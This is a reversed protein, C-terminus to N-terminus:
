LAAIYNDRLVDYPLVDGTVLYPVCGVAQALARLGPAHSDYVERGHQFLERMASSILDAYHAEIGFPLARKVVHMPKYISVVELPALFKGLEVDFRFLRKLFSVECWPTFPKSIPLKSTDTLEKGQSAFWKCLSVQNFWELGPRATLVHDDGYFSARVYDAFAGKLGALRPICRKARYGAPLTIGGVSVIDTPRPLIIGGDRDQPELQAAMFYFGSRFRLANTGNNFYVTGANGSPNGGDTQYQDARIVCWARAIDEAVGWMITIDRETYNGTLEALAVWISCMAMMEQYALSQDYHVWDGVLAKSSDYAQLWTALAHWEAGSANIGVASELVFPFYAYLRFLPLFYKRFICNLLLPGGKFVRVKKGPKLPEDKQSLKFALNARQGQAYTEEVARLEATTVENLVLGDPEDPLPDPSMHALKPGLYPWGAATGMPIRNISSCGKVGSVMEHDSLPRMQAVVEPCAEMVAVHEALYDEQAMVLFDPDLQEYTEVERVHRAEVGKQGYHVPPGHLRPQGCLEEVLQSHPSVVLRTHPHNTRQFSLTGAVIYPVGDSTERLVSGDSLEQLTSQMEFGVPTHLQTSLQEVPPGKLPGSRRLAEIAMRIEDRDVPASQVASTSTHGMTHLSLIIPKSGPVIVPAGCLGKFSAIPRVGQFGPYSWGFAANHVRCKEVTYRCQEVVYDQVGPRVRSLEVVPYSSSTLASCALFPTVDAMSGGVGTQVVALDNSLKYITTQGVRCKFTPGYAAGTSTFLLHKIKSPVPARASGGSRYFNHAPMLAYNTCLMLAQTIVVQSEYHVEVVFLQRAIRAMAQEYSMGRAPGEVYQALAVQEKHKWQNPRPFLDAQAGICGGHPEFSESEMEEPEGMLAPGKPAGGLEGLFDNFEEEPDCDSVDGFWPTRCQSVTHRTTSPAKPGRKSSLPDLEIHCKAGAIPPVVLTPPDSYTSSSQPRSSREVPTAVLPAAVEVVDESPKKCARVICKGLYLSTLVAIVGLIMRSGEVKLVQALRKRLAGLPMGSIRHYVFDAAVRSQTRVFWLNSIIALPISIIGSFGCLAALCGTFVGCSAPLIGYLLTLFGVPNAIFLEEFTTKGQMYAECWGMFRPRPPPEEPPPPVLAGRVDGLRERMRTYFNSVPEPPAPEPPELPVGTAPGIDRGFLYDEARGAWALFREREGAEQEFVPSASPAEVPAQLAARCHHCMRATTHGHECLTEMAAEKQQAHMLRKQQFHTIVRPKLFEMLQSYNADKLLLNYVGGGDIKGPDVRLPVYDYVNFRQFYSSIGETLKSADVTPLAQVPQVTGDHATINRRSPNAFAPDVSVSIHLDFRRHITTPANSTVGANLDMVNTSALLVAANHTVVGKDELAAKEVPAKSVNKIAIVADLQDRKMFEPKTNGLDDLIVGLTHNTITSMYAESANVFAIHDDSFPLQAIRLIDRVIQVQVSSKGCATPGYLKIGIPEVRTPDRTIYEKLRLDVAVIQQQMRRLVLKEPASKTKAHAVNVKKLHNAVTLMFEPNSIGTARQLTGNLLAPEQALINAHAADLSTAGSQTFFPRMSSTVCAETIVDWSVRVLHLIELVLDTYDIRNKDIGDALRRYLGPAKDEFNQGLAGAAVCYAFIRKFRRALAGDKFLEFGDLGDGYAVRLTDNLSDPTEEGAHPTWEEQNKFIGMVHRHLKGDTISSAFAVMATTFQMPTRLTFMHILHTFIVEFKRDIEAFTIQRISHMIAAAEGQAQETAPAGLPPFSYQFGTSDDSITYPSTSTHVSFENSSTSMVFCHGCLLSKVLFLRWQLWQIYIYVTIARPPAVM